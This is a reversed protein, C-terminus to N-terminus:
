RTVTVAQTAVGETTVLRALYVGPSWGTVDLSLTGRMERSVVTRGLADTVTLTGRLSAESRLRLVGRTPNPSATVRVARPGPESATDIDSYFVYARGGQAGDPAGVLLEPRGDDDLDGVRAVARGFDAVTAPDPNDLTRILTGDAGSFVYATGAFPTGDTGTELSAGVLIDSITDDDLDSAGTVANGFSDFGGPSPSALTHLLAGTAGSFVFVRASAGVIVDGVGDGDLDGITSVDTGFQGGDRPEPNDFVRTQVPTGSTSFAYVRGNDQETDTDTMPAGVLFEEVGDGDLDDANDLSRAFGPDDAATSAPAGTSGLLAGTASSFLYAMGDVGSPAPENPAGVLLDPNGDGDADAARAVTLGFWGGLVPSPSELTLLISGDAGSFVFARGFDSFPAGVIVDPTGDSNTDGAPGISLGFGTGEEPSDLTFLPSGDAGSFVYVKGQPGSGPTGVYEGPASVLIERLGDGDLDNISDVATGFGITFGETQPQLTLVPQAALPAGLVALLAAGFRLGPM